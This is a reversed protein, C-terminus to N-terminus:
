FSGYWGEVVVTPKPCTSSRCFYQLRLESSHGPCFPPPDLRRGVPFSFPVVVVVAAWIKEQWPVFFSCAPIHTVVSTSVSATIYRQTQMVENLVALLSENRRAHFYGAAREKEPAIVNKPLFCLWSPELSLCWAWTLAQRHPQPRNERKYICVLTNQRKDEFLLSM